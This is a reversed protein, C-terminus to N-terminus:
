ATYMLLITKGAPLTFTCTDALFYCSFSGKRQRLMVSIERRMASSLEPCMYSPLRKFGKSSIDTAALLVAVMDDRRFRLALHVLTHGIEYVGARDLILVEDKTLQRAPDGGSTLYIEIGSSDGKAVSECANLWISDERNLKRRLKQIRRERRDEEKQGGIAGVADQIYLTDNRVRMQNRNSRSARAIVPSGRGVNSPSIQGPEQPSVPGSRNNKPSTQKPSNLGSDSNYPIVNGQKINKRSCSPSSRNNPSNHGSSNNPSSQGSKNNSSGPSVRNSNAASQQHPNNPSSQGCKNNRQHVARNPSNQGSKTNEQNRSDVDIQLPLQKLILQNTPNTEENSGGSSDRKTRCMVCLKTKPFNEYTCAACSWKLMGVSVNTSSGKDIELAGTNPSLVRKSGSSSMKGPTVAPFTMSLSKTREPVPDAPSMVKQDIPLQCQLCKKSGACNLFTCHRCSWESSSVELLKNSQSGTNEKKKAELEAVKYIDQESNERDSIVQMPRSGQCLVCKRSAPFNKYTCRICDWKAEESM